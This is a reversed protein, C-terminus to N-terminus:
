GREAVGRIYDEFIRKIVREDNSDFHLFPRAPIPGRGFHHTAGYKIGTGFGYHLTNGIVQKKAQSTISTKLYGTDNLPRGGSRRPHRAITSAKLPAWSNSSFRRTISSEMHTGAQQLPTQFNSIQRAIDLLRRDLGNLDIEINTQAGAM